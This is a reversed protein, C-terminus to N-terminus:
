KEELAGELVAGAVERQDRQQDVDGRERDPRPGTNQSIIESIKGMPTRLLAM